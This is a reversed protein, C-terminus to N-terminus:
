KYFQKANRWVPKLSQLNYYTNHVGYIVWLDYTVNTFRPKKKHIMLCAITVLILVWKEEYNVGQNILGQMHKCM